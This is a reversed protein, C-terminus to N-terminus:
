GIVKRSTVYCHEGHSVWPWPTQTIAAAITTMAHAAPGLQAETRCVYAAVEPASAGAPPDEPVVVKKKDNKHVM